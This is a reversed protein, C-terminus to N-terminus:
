NISAKSDWTNLMRVVILFFNSFCPLDELVLVVGLGADMATSTLSLALLPLSSPLPFPPPSPPISSFLLLLSFAQSQLWYQHQCRQSLSGIPVEWEGTLQHHCDPVLKTRSVMKQENLHSLKLKPGAIAMKKRNVQKKSQYQYTLCLANLLLMPKWTFHGQQLDSLLLWEVRSGGDRECQTVQPHSLQYNPIYGNCVHLGDMM